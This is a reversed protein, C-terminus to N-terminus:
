REDILFVSEEGSLNSEMTLAAFHKTFAVIRVPSEVVRLLEEAPRSSRANRQSSESQSYQGPGQGEKREEQLITNNKRRELKMM